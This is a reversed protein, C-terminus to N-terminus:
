VFYVRGYTYFIGLICNVYTYFRGMGAPQLKCVVNSILCLKCYSWHISLGRLIFFDESVTSPDVAIKSLFNTSILLLKISIQECRHIMAFINELM